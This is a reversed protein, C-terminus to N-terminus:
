EDESAGEPGYESLARRMLEDDSVGELEALKRLRQFERRPLRVVNGDKRDLGDKTAKSM